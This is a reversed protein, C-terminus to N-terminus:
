NAITEGETKNVPEAEVEEIPKVSMNFNPVMTIIFEQEDKFEELFKKVEGITMISLLYNFKGLLPM